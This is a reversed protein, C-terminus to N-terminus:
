FCKTTTISNSIPRTEIKLKVIYLMKLFIILTGKLAFSTANVTITIVTIFMAVGTNIVNESAEVITILIAVMINKIAIDYV